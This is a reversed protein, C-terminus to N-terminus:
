KVIGLRKSEAEIEGLITEVAWVYRELNPLTPKGSAIGVEGFAIYNGFTYNCKFNQTGTEHLTFLEMENKTDDWVPRPYPMEMFGIGHASVGAAITVTGIPIVLKHKNATCVENLAFLLDEGGQYPQYSRLLPWLEQPVDACRGKLNAEFTTADKSFPFYANRPSTCGSAVAIGYLAHDLASRLNDVVNGTMESIADPLEKSLRMKYVVFQPRNPHPESFMEYTQNKILVDARRQLKALDKKARALKRRSSGFPDPTITKTSTM